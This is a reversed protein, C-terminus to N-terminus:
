DVKNEQIGTKVLMYLKFKRNGSILQSQYPILDM